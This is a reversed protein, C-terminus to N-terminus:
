SMINQELMSEEVKNNFNRIDETNAGALFKIARHLEIMRDDAEDENRVEVKLLKIIHLCDNMIRNSLNHILPNKFNTDCIHTNYEADTCYQMLYICNLSELIQLKRKETLPQNRKIKM